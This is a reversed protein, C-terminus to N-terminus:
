EKVRAFRGCPIVTIKIGMNKKISTDLYGQLDDLKKFGMKETTCKDFESYLFVKKELILRAVAVAKHGGLVFNEKFKKSILDYDTADQMWEEFIKEGFGEHCSAALIIIGGPNVLDKINELTKHSQHFNLDKPDGGASAIVIDAARNVELMYIDDYKKIGELWADNNAGAVAGIIKKNDDLIVNFIYDIGVMRGAEEIDERVPNGSAKGPAAKEDLMMSHNAQVSRRTCIGPMVAKAGGSYGAFYHYEINGTAILIDAKLADEFVEVPTGKSTTGILKCRQPDSNIVAANEMAYQGVLKIKEESTHPRHIGLGLIITIVSIGGEKLEDILYPLFRYSPCPRTIDSILIAATSKGEALKSLRPSGIPNNLAEEIIKKEDLSQDAEGSQIIDQINRDPIYLKIKKKGYPIDIRMIDHRKRIKIEKRVTRPV